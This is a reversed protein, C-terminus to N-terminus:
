ATTTAPKPVVSPTASASGTANASPTEANKTEQTQEYLRLQAKSPFQYTQDGSTADRYQLIVTNLLPDLHVEPRWGICDHGGVQKSGDRDCFGNPYRKGAKGVCRARAGSKWYRFHKVNGAVEEPHM